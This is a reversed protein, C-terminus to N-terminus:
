AAGDLRYKDNFFRCDFPTTHWEIIEHKTNDYFLLSWVPFALNIRFINIRAVNGKSFYSNIPDFEDINRCKLPGSILKIM